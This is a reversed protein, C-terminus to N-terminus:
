HLGDGNQRQEVLHLLELEGNVHRRMGDFFSRLLYGTAETPLTPRGNALARLADSVEGATGFDALHEQRLRTVIQGLERRGSRALIPFLVTEELDHVDQVMPEITDALELCLGTDIRPLWDAIAELRDCLELLQRYSRELQDTGGDPSM